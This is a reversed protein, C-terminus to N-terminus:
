QIEPCLEGLSALRGKAQFAEASDFYKHIIFQYLAVAEARRGLGELSQAKIFYARLKAEPAAEGQAIAFEAISLAAQYEGKALRGSAREANGRQSTAACSVLILLPIVFLMRSVSAVRGGPSVGSRSRKGDGAVPRPLM